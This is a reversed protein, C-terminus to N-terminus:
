GGSLISEDVSRFISRYTLSTHIEFELGVAIALSPPDEM